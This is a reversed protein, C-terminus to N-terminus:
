ARTAVLTGFAVVNATYTDNEADYRGGCTILRLEPRDVPRYVRNTPFDAKPYEAVETSVFVATRGDARRVHVRQGPRLAGLDFFVAPEEDWTVHGAIVAGGAAGPAPSGRYWGPTAPDAPVELTQQDDVDLGVVPARVGLSPITMSVPRSSQMPAAHRVSISARRDPAPPASQQSLLGAVIMAVGIWALLRTAASLGRGGYPAHEARV